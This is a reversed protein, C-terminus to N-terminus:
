NLQLNKVSLWRELVILSWIHSSSDEKKAYFSNLLQKFYGSKFLKAIQCDPSLLEHVESENDQLWHWVPPNFGKKRRALIEGPLIGQYADKLIRKTKSGKIKWEPRLKASLEMLERNVFPIRLEFSAAMALRDSGDLLNNPLFSNQDTYCANSVPADDNYDFLNSLYRTRANTMFVQGIESSHLTYKDIPFISTWDQFQEGISKHQNNIFKKLRRMTHTGSPTEPFLKLLAKLPAGGVKAFLKTKNVLSLARYRPYGGFLEDAGDGVLGVVVDNRANKCLQNTMAVTPNGYPEDLHSIILDMTDLIHMNDFDPTIIHHDLGFHDAVIKAYQTENYEKNNKYEISFVKANEVTQAMEAAIISSDIGGSLFAGVPVDSILQSRVARGVADKVLQKATHYDTDLYDNKPVTWWQSVQLNDNPLDFEVYHGPELKFVGNYVTKPAPVYNYILYEAVADSRVSLKSNLAEIVKLESAFIFTNEQHSYYLPKQGAHDRACFLKNTHKDWIAIAFMGDLKDLLGAGWHQYGQLVVETDSNTKFTCGVSELENRLKLFNYIEGNYIITYRGDPSYMPQNAEASLDIISLRNHILTANELEAIGLNDPGRHSTLEGLFAPAPVDLKGIIGIIGCM